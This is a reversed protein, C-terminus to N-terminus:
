HLDPPLETLTRSQIENARYETTLGCYPCFASSPKVNKPVYLTANGLDPRLPIHKKCEANQCFVGFYKNGVILEGKRPRISADVM